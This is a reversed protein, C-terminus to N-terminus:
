ADIRVMTIYLELLNPNKAYMQLGCATYWFALDVYHLLM